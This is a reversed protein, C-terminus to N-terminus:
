ATPASGSVAGAQGVTRRGGGSGLIVSAHSEWKYMLDDRNIVILQCESITTRAPPVDVQNIAAALPAAPGDHNIYALSMHPLFPEEAEPVNAPGWVDVIASRLARRLEVVPAPPQVDIQVAEVDVYPSGITLDFPALAACRQRAAEVVADIDARDVEDVFGVGQMTLHLWQAPIADTEPTTELLSRYADSFASVAPHDAFTLHWTYYRRGLSWGPRWYWHNRVRDPSANAV